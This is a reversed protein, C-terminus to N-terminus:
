RGLTSSALCCFFIAGIVVLGAIIGIILNKNKQFFLDTKSVAEVIAEANEKEKNIEKSM